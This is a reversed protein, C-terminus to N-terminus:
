VNQNNSRASLFSSTGIIYIDIQDSVQSPLYSLVRPDLHHCRVCSGGSFSLISLHCRTLQRMFWSTPVQAISCGGSFWNNRVVGPLYESLTWSQRCGAHRLDGGKYCWIIELEITCSCSNTFVVGRSGLQHEGSPLLPLHPHLLIALHLLLLHPDLGLVAPHRSPLADQLWLHHLYSQWALLQHPAKFLHSLRVQPWHSQTYWTCTHVIMMDGSWTTLCDSFTLEYVSLVHPSLERKTDVCYFSINQSINTFTFHYM